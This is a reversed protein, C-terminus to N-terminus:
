GAPAYTEILAATATKEAVIQSVIEDFSRALGFLRARVSRMQTFRHVRKLAQANNGPSWDQELMDIHNAATLTIATGGAKINLIVCRMAPDQQFQTMISQRDQESTEGNILGCKIGHRWLYDRVSILAKKHIGFTVMKDLGSEFEGVLQAAYPLAKAEGILRRLTAVHDSDLGSLGKGDKLTEIIRSDLGPFTLLFERIAHTDGDVLSTTLFIPPLEVGTQVLTRRISNNSILAHLEPLMDPKPTHSASYTRERRYFYRDAFHKFDLHWARVFKLFTYIDKPDNPVPTGTAWWTAMSWQVLGGAGDSHDGLIQKARSTEPEKLYHGEDIVIFDLVEQWDHVHKTWKTAMEFSVVIVDFVGKQWAILEHISNGKVIKRPWHQFKSFEGRWQERAVAPCVVLGRRAGRMDAARILQASKGVGM